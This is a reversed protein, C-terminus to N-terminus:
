LVDDESPLDATKRCFVNVQALCVPNELRLVADESSLILNEGDFSEDEPFFVQSALGLM